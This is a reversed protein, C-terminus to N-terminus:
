VCVSGAGVCVEATAFSSSRSGGHTSGAVAPGGAHAVTKALLGVNFALDALWAQKEAADAAQIHFRKTPAHLSFVHPRPRTVLSRAMREDGDPFITLGKLSIVGRLKKDAPSCFLSFTERGCSSM